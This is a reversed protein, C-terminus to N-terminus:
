ARIPRGATVFAFVETVMGLVVAGLYVVGLAVGLPDGAYCDLNRRLEKIFGARVNDRRIESRGQWFARRLLYGARVREPAIHHTCIADDLLALECGGAVLERLFTTDDGSELRRGTRGLGERFTLSARRVAAVDVGMCAGWASIRRDPRHLALYHYQGYGLFWRDLDLEVPPQLRVGVAGAGRRFADRVADIVEPSITADDDVFLLYPTGCRALARNRSASLGQNCPNCVVSVGAQELAALVSRAPPSSSDVICLAVDWPGLAKRNSVLHHWFREMRNTCVALTIADEACGGAGKRDISLSESM